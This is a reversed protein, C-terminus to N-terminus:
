LKPQLGQPEVLICENPLWDRLLEAAGDNKSLQPFAEQESIDLSPSVSLEVLPKHPRETEHMHLVPAVCADTHDFIARWDTLTKERFRSAFLEKLRPWNARDDREPLMSSELDLGKILQAYFQPEQAGVTIHRGDATEYVEYFPAAGDLLNEGRPQDWAPQTLHQRPMTALYSVGDVMNARVIQGRGTSQRHFLALLIGTVLVHGGGAFDGLINGPPAPAEGKRGFLSLVGSVALYNIDHGARDGYVGGPRYGSLQAYILKPNAACLVSSGLGLRDLVGPRYPDIVVDAANALKLFVNQSKPSKLDIVVSRKHRVLSDKPGYVEGPRDVRVVDCGYDALIVGAFNSPALRSQDAPVRRTM